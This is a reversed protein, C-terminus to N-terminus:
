GTLIRTRLKPVCTGTQTTKADSLPEVPVTGATMLLGVCFRAIVRGQDM